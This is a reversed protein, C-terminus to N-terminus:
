PNDDGILAVETFYITRESENTVLKIPGTHPRAIVARQETLEIVDENLGSDLLKFISYATSYAEDADIRRVHIQIQRIASGDNIPPVAHATLLLGICEDPQDPMTDRYIDSYGHVM